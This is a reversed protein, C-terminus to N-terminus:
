PTVADPADDLLPRVNGLHARLSQELAAADRSRLATLVQRHNEAIDGDQRVFIPNTVALSIRLLGALSRWVRQALGSGGVAILVSHFALDAEALEAVDGAVSAAAIREVCRDLEALEEDTVVAAARACDLTELFERIALADQVERDDLRVVMAGLHPSSTVIGEQELKRLAERVPGRSLGLERALDPEYLRQGPAFLGRVIASRIADAAIEYLPRRAAAGVRPADPDSRSRTM